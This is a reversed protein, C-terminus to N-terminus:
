RINLFELFEDSTFNGQFLDGQANFIAPTAFIALGQATIQNGLLHNEDGTCRVSQSRIGKMGASLLTARKSPDSECWMHRMPEFSEDYVPYGIAKVTIGKANFEGIRAHFLKCYPCNIDTAVYVVAKEEGKAPYIALANEDLQSFVHQNKKREFEYDLGVFYGNEIKSIEGNIFYRGDASVLFPVGGTGSVGWLLGKINTHYFATDQDINALAKMNDLLASKYTKSVPTGAPQNASIHSAIAVAPSPNAELAGQIVYDAATTILLPEQNAGLTVVLLGDIASPAINTIPAQLGAHTLLARIQNYDSSASIAAPASQAYAPVSALAGLFLAGFLATLKASSNFSSM